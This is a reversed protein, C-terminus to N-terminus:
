NFCVSWSQKYKYSDQLVKTPSLSAEAVEVVNSDVQTDGTEDAVFLGTGKIGDVYEDAIWTAEIEFCGTGTKQRVYDADGRTLNTSDAEIEGKLYGRSASASFSSANSLGIHSITPESAQGLSRDALYDRGEDTVLNEQFSSHVLEGETNYIETTVNGDWQLTDVAEVPEQTGQDPLQPASVVAVALVFSLALSYKDVKIPETVQLAETFSVSDVAKLVHLDVSFSM